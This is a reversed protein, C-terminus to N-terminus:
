NEVIVHYKVKTSTSSDFWITYNKGAQLEAGSINTVELSGSMNVNLSTNADITQYASAAKYGLASILSTGTSYAVNVAGTLLPAVNIFRVRAKGSVAANENAYTKIGMTGNLEKVLFVTLTTNADLNIDGSASATASGTNKFSVMSEGAPASVSGSTNGYAVAAASTRNNGIYTDQAASGEVTNVFVVKGTPSNVDDDDKKCSSISFTLAALFATGVM